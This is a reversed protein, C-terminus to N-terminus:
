FPQFSARFSFKPMLWSFLLWFLLMPYSVQELFSLLGKWSIQQFLRPLFAQWQLLLERLFVGPRSFITRFSFAPFVRQYRPGLRCGLKWSATEGKLIASM